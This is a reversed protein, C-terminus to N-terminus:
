GTHMRILAVNAASALPLLAGRSGGGVLPLPKTPNKANPGALNVLRLVHARRDTDTDKVRRAAGVARHPAIAVIAGGERDLMEGGIANRHFRDEGVWAAFSLAIDRECALQKPLAATAVDDAGDEGGRAFVHDREDFLVVAQEPVDTGILAELRILADDIRTRTRVLMQQRQELM